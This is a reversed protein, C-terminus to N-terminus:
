KAFDIDIIDVKTYTDLAIQIDGAVKSNSILRGETCLYQGIYM